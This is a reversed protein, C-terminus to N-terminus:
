QGERSTLGQKENEEQLMRSKEKESIKTCQHVEHDWRCISGTFEEYCGKCRRCGSTRQRHRVAGDLRSHKRNCASCFLHINAHKQNMHEAVRRSSGSAGGSTFTCDPMPCHFCRDARRRGVHQQYHLKTNNYTAPQIM